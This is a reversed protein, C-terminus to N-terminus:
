QCTGMEPVRPKDTTETGYGSGAGDDYQVLYFFAAGPPPEEVDSADVTYVGRSQDEVLFLRGDPAFAIGRGSFTRDLQVVPSAQGTDTDITVLFDGVENVFAGWLVGSSDFALASSVVEGMNFPGIITAMGTAPDIEVTNDNDNESGFLRAACPAAFASHEASVLALIMLFSAPGITKMTEM